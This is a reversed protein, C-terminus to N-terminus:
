RGGYRIWELRLGEPPLTPGANARDKSVLIAPIADPEIRGRGVEVLTGALIRVMNYLFGNGTVDIRHRRAPFAGDKKGGTSSADPVPLETVACDFITRVTTQRGHGAAALSAFDHEGVLDAAARQMRGLDLEHWTHYVYQRDWLPRTPSAHITYSYAKSTAGGIPEFEDAVIEADRVFLDDPLRSNLARVLADCGRDAPWGVGKDPEPESTFAAVQGWAHVGADTRSAGVLRVPERVTERAAQELVHQVTRLAIRGPRDELRDATAPQAPSAPDGPDPALPEQKQWGHFATGDYAVTLKYRPM